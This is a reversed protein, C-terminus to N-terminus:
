ASPAVICRTSVRWSAEFLLGLMKLKGGIRESRGSTEPGKSCITILASAGSRDCRQGVAISSSRAMKFRAGTLTTGGTPGIACPTTEVGKVGPLPGDLGIDPGGDPERGPVLLGGWVPTVPGAPGCM